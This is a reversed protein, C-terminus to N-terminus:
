LSSRKVGGVKQDYFRKLVKLTLFTKLQCARLDEMKLDRGRESDQGMISFAGDRLISYELILYSGINTLKQKKM